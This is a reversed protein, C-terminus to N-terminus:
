PLKKAAQFAPTGMPPAYSDIVAVGFDTDAEKIKFRIKSSGEVVAMSQELRSEHDSLQEFYKWSQAADTGGNGYAKMLASAGVLIARDVDVTPTMLSEHYTKGDVGGDDVIVPNNALFRIAYRDLPKVLIGNWSIGEGSFLPHSKAGEYRRMANTVATNWDIAANSRKALEWQRRTVWLVYLPKTAAWIDAEFMASRMPIESEMLMAGLTGIDDLGLVDQNTITDLSTANGAFFHRNKTPALVPNVMIRGFNASTQMPITWDHLEQHGRAGALHVLARQNELRTSISRLGELGIRRLDHPTRFGSMKTAEVGFRSQDVKVSQVSQTTSMFKGTLVEDGMIPNGEFINVLSFQVEDAIGKGLDTSVVIPAGSSSQSKQNKDSIKPPTGRNMKFFGCDDEVGQFLYPSYVKTARSDGAPILLSM